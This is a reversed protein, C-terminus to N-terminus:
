IVFIHTNAMTEDDDVVGTDNSDYLYKLSALENQYKRDYSQVLMDWSDNQAKRFDSFILEFAKYIILNDWIDEILYTSFTISDTGGATIQDLKYRWFKYQNSFLQSQEGGSTATLSAGVNEFTSNNNSGQLNLAWTGTISIANFVLRKYNRDGEIGTGTTDAAKTVTTVLNATTGSSLLDFPVMMLRPNLGQNNVDTLLIHFAEAIQESYDSQSTWIQRALNPHFVKLTEDTIFSRLM